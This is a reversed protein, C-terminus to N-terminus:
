ALPAEPALDVHQRSHVRGNLEDSIHWESRNFSDSTAGTLPPPPSHHRQGSVEAFRKFLQPNQEFVSGLGKGRRSAQRKVDLHRAVMQPNVAAVAAPKFRRQKKTDLNGPCVVVPEPIAEDQHLTEAVFLM